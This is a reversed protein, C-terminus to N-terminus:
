GAAAGKAGIGARMALIQSTANQQIGTCIAFGLFAILVSVTSLAAIGVWALAASLTFVRYAFGLAFARRYALVISTGQQDVILPFVYLQVCLWLVLIYVWMIELVTAVLSHFRPYYALNASIIALAAIAVLWAQLAVLGFAKLGDWWDGLHIPEGRTLDRMMPHLGAAAPTPLTLLFVGILIYRSDGPLGFVLLLLALVAAFPLSLVVTLVNVAVMTWIHRFIQSFTDGVASLAQRM